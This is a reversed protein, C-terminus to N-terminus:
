YSVVSALIARPNTQSSFSTRAGPNIFCNLAARRVCLLARRYCRASATRPRVGSRPSLSPGVCLRGSLSPASAGLAARVLSPGVCFVGDVRFLVFCIM